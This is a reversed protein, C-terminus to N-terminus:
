CRRSPGTSAPPAGGCAPPPIARPICPSRAAFGGRPDRGGEAQMSALTTSGGHSGGM